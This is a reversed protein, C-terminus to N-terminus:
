HVMQMVDVMINELVHLQGTVPHFSKILSQGIAHAVVSTVIYPQIAWAAHLPFRGLKLGRLLSQVPYGRPYVIHCVRDFLVRSRPNHHYMQILHWTIPSGNPTLRRLSAAIPATPSSHISSGLWLSLLCSWECVDFLFFDHYAQLQNLIFLRLFSCHSM